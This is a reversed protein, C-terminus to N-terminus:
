SFIMRGTLEKNDRWADIELCDEKKWPPNGRMQNAYEQLEAVTHEIHACGEFVFGGPIWFQNLKDDVKGLDIRIEAPKDNRIVHLIQYRHWEKEDPTKLNVEVLKLCPEDPKYDTTGQILKLM